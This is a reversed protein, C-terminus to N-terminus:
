RLGCNIRIQSDNCRMPHEDKVSTLAAIRLPQVLEDLPNKGPKRVVFFIGATEWFRLGREKANWNLIGFKECLASALRIEACKKVNIQHQVAL